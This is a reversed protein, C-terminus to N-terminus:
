VSTKTKLKTREIGQHPTNLKMLREAREREKLTTWKQVSAQEFPIM